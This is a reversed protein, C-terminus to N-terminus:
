NSWKSQEFPSLSQRALFYYDFIFWVCLLYYCYDIIVWSLGWGRRYYRIGMRMFPLIWEQTELSWSCSNLLQDIRWHTVFLPINSFLDEQFLALGWLEHFLLFLVKLRLLNGKIKRQKGHNLRKVLTESKKFIQFVLKTTNERLIVDCLCLLTNPNM